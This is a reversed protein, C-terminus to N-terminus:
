KQDGQDDLAPNGIPRADIIPGGSDGFTAMRRWTTQTDEHHLRDANVFGWFINQLIFWAVPVAAFALLYPRFATDYFIGVLLTFPTVIAVLTLPGSLVSRTSIFRISSHVGPLHKLWGWGDTM